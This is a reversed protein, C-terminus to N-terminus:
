YCNDFYLNGSYVLLINGEGFLHRMSCVYLIKLLNFFINLNCVYSNLGIKGISIGNLGIFVNIKSPLLRIFCFLKM